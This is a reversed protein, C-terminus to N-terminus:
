RKDGSDNAMIAAEIKLLQEIQSNQKEIMLKQEENAQSLQSNLRSLTVLASELELLDQSPQYVMVRLFQQMELSLEPLLQTIWTQARLRDEYPTEKGQSLLIKKLMSNPDSKLRNIEEDRQPWSLSELKNRYNLWDAIGCSREPSVQSMTNMCNKSMDLTDDNLVSQNQQRDQTNIHPLLECGSLFFLVFLVCVLRMTM